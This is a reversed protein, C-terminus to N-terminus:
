STQFLQEVIHHSCILVDVGTYYFQKVVPNLYWVNSSEVPSKCWVKYVNWRILFILLIEISWQAYTQHSSYKMPVTKAYHDIISMSLCKKHYRNFVNFMRADNTVFLNDAM